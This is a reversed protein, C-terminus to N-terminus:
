DRNELVAVTQGRTVADGDNVAVELLRGFTRAALKIEQSTKGEVRGRAAFRSDIAGRRVTFERSYGNRGNSNLGGSGVYFVLPAIIFVSLGALLYISKRNSEM